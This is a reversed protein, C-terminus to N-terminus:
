VDCSQMLTVSSGFGFRFPRSTPDSVRQSNRLQRFAQGDRARNQAAIGPVECILDSRSVYKGSIWISCTNKTRYPLDERFDLRSRTRAFRILKFTGAKGTRDASTRQSSNPEFHYGIDPDTRIQSHRPGKSHHEIKKRLQNIFVRLHNIHPPDSSGWLAELLRVYSVPRGQNLILHRLLELKKPTLHISRNNVVVRRCAFDIKLRASEFQSKHAETSETRFAARM